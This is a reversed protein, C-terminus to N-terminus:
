FFLLCLIVSVGLFLLIRSLYARHEDEEEENGGTPAPAFSQFQLGFLSPFFGM